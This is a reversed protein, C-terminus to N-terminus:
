ASLIFSVILTVSAAGLLAWPVIRKELLPFAAVTLGMGVIGVIVITPEYWSGASGGIITILAVIGSVLGGLALALAWACAGALLRMRPRGDNDAAGAPGASGDLNIRRPIGAPPPM